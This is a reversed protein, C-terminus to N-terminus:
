PLACCAYASLANSGTATPVAMAAAQWTSGGPPQAVVTITAIALPIEVKPTRRRMVVYALTIQFQDQASHDSANAFMVRVVRLVISTLM